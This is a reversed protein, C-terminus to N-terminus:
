QFHAVCPLLSATEQGLDQGERNERWCDAYPELSYDIDQPCQHLVWETLVELSSFVLFICLLWQGAPQHSGCAAILGSAPKLKRNIYHTFIWYIFYRVTFILYIVAFSVFGEDERLNYPQFVTKIVESWGCLQGLWEFMGCPPSMEKIFIDRPRRITRPIDLRVSTLFEKPAAKDWM